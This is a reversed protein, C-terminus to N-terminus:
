STSEPAAITESGLSDLRRHWNRTPKPEPLLFDSFGQGLLSMFTRGILERRRAGHQDVTSGKNHFTQKMWFCATSSNLLGLLALHDDETADAPLKIIPASTSFRAAETLFSTTTHPLSPSLSPCRLESSIKLLTCRLARVM